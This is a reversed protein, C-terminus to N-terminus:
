LDANIKDLLKSTILTVSCLAFDPRACVLTWFKSVFRTVVSFVSDLFIVINCFQMVTVTM